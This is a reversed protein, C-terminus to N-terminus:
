SKSAADENADSTIEAPRAAAELEMMGSVAKYTTYGGTLVRVAFGRAQLVRAALYSRLGVACFVLIEKDAPLEGLRARLDDVPINVAGPITGAGVESPTRVDLLVRNERLSGIEEAYFFRVDGRLHNAAAFGAYNVPDKASGFPPAYSLELHELDYVTMRGRLATALVDLRKDVGDTGVVQAGLLRGDAPDYLLKISLPQAGPYYGAHSAPHVYVKAYARGLRRLTKENMGTGGAALFFVKCISTGQSGRYASEALGLAHDAALRGQRNAPGALPLVGSENSVFDLTEIADGVAYIDPDSTQLHENVQIGGRAGLALGAERALVTEPRVGIALIALDTELTEGSTLRVALGRAEATFGAVGAGLRLAVGHLSLQQHVPAAMEPDLSGMVQPAMEVLTVALGRGRLAEAMELGIFGGGVVLARKPDRAGLYAMIRDMDDLSRLTFIGPSDIGPLAPRIPEAGPSLILTQYPEDYTKGTAADRVSVVKRGRDVALVESNVRVDIRFRRRMAEATQVLLRNRERIVGGIHYPLGCNAFSIFPGREILVIEADEDRRRARAAASAGGAVGGVIVLKRGM